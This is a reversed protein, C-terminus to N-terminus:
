TDREDRWPYAEGNNRYWRALERSFLEANSIKENKEPGRM